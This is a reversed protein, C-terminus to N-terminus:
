NDIAQSEPPLAPSGIAQDTSEPLRRSPRLQVARSRFGGPPAEQETLRVIDRQLDRVLFSLDSAILSQPFYTMINFMYYGPHRQADAFALYVHGTESDVFRGETQVLTAGLWYGITARPLFWGEHWQTIAKAEAERDCIQDLAECLRTIWQVLDHPFAPLSSLNRPFVAVGMVRVLVSYVRTVAFLALLPPPLVSLEGFLERRKVEENRTRCGLEPNAGQFPREVSGDAM